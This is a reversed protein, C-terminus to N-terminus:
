CSLVSKIAWIEMILSAPEFCPLPARRTNVPRRRSAADADPHHQIATRHRRAHMPARLRELHEGATRQSPVPGLALFLLCEVGRDGGDMKSASPRPVSVVLLLIAATLFDLYPANSILGSCFFLSGPVIWVLLAQIRWDSRVRAANRLVILLVPWFGVLLPLLFRVFNAVTYMRVGTLM